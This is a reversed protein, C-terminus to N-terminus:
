QARRRFLTYKFALGLVIGYFMLCIIHNYYTSFPRIEVHKGEIFATSYLKFLFWFFWSIMVAKIVINGSGYKDLVQYLVIGAVGGAVFEVIMGFIFSPRNLTIFLSDIQYMDQAGIGLAVLLMSLAEGALTAVAGILAATVYRDLKMRIGGFTAITLM